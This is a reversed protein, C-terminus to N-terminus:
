KLIPIIGVYKFTTSHESSSSVNNFNYLRYYEILRSIKITIGSVQSPGHEFQQGFCEINEYFQWLVTLTMKKYTVM